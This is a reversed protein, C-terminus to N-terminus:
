LIEKQCKHVEGFTLKFMCKGGEIWLWAALAGPWVEFKVILIRMPNMNCIFVPQNNNNDNSSRVRTTPNICQPEILSKLYILYCSCYRKPGPPDGVCWENKFCFFNKKEKKTNRISKPITQVSKFLYARFHSIIFQSHSPLFFFYEFERVCM